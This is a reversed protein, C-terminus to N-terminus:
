AVVKYLKECYTGLLALVQEHLPELGAIDRHPPGQPPAFEVLSIGEFCQFMWRMTPRGTPQKLQNPVTQGRAALQERLRQEALRYVLLCLVMVLRLAVIRHPKKVLVSSALFLPDKLFAFGREVSGQEKYAQILEQDSLREPDLLNTAVLYSATRQAERSVAQENLARTATIQWAASTPPTDQRPRGARRHKPHVVLRTQGELWNPCKKLQKALAAQADPACAFRQNGLHWLQQEWTRQAQEVQRQLTARARWEDRQAADQESVAMKAM